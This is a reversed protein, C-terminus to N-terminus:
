EISGIRRCEAIPNWIDIEGKNYEGIRLIRVCIAQSLAYEEVDMDCVGKIKKHPPRPNKEYVDLIADSWEDRPLKDLLKEAKKPGWKWAGFINDTVDGSLWQSYLLKDAEEETVLVPEDDKDPNYHWGPVNKLDKDISVATGFGGSTMMGMIDDAEIRPRKIIDYSNSLIEKAYELHEPEAKGSRNSKYLPFYDRRFNDSRSCSFAIRAKEHHKSWEAVDNVLRDELLDVGEREAWWAARYALIDGDLIATKMQAM